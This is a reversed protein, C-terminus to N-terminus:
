LIFSGCQHDGLQDLDPLMLFSFKLIDSDSAVSSTPSTDDMLSLLSESSSLLPLLLAM